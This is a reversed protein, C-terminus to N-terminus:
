RLEAPLLEAPFGQFCVPRLFRRIADHGVSSFRSDTTAPYPGGHFMAQCVEVGTPFGNLLLRGAKRQLIAVLERCAAEETAAAQVTASLQGKLRQAAQQLQAYSTCVVLLAAPGFLEEALQPQAFFAAASTQLMAPNVSCTEAPTQRPEAIPTVGPSSQLRALGALYSDRICM